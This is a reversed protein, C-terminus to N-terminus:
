PYWAVYYDTAGNRCLWQQKELRLGPQRLWRKYEGQDLVVWAGHPVREPMFSAATPFFEVRVGAYYFTEPKSTVAGGAAVVAGPGVIERLKYATNIGSTISRDVSRQMGFALAVVLILPVFGWAASWSRAVRTALIVALVIAVASACVLLLLLLRSHSMRWASFSLGCAAAAYGGASFVAAARLWKAGAVTRAAAVAVAGALPCLPLLTPYGYRPNEMGSVVCVGWGILVAAVLAAALRREREGMEGRVSPVCYLALALSVPIAFAFLQPPIVTLSKGLTKLSDAYLRSTGEQVGRFDPPLHHRELSARAYFFYGAFIAAGIVLPAWFRPHLVRVAERDRVAVVVGWLLAGVIVPLGGPGKTMLTAGLAVGAGVIWPWASRPREVLLVVVCRAAVAAALLDGVQQASLEARVPLAGVGCLFLGVLASRVFRGSM